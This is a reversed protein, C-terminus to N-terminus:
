EYARFEEESMGSEIAEEEDAAFLDFCDSCVWFPGQYTMAEYFLENVNWRRSCNDCTDDNKSM